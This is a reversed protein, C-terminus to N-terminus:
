LLPGFTWWTLSIILITFGQCVHQCIVSSWSNGNRYKIIEHARDILIPDYGLTFLSQWWAGMRTHNKMYWITNRKLNIIVRKWTNTTHHKHHLKDHKNDGAEFPLHELSHNSICFIDFICPNYCCFEQSQDSCDTAYCSNLKHSMNDVFSCPKNEVMAMYVYFWPNINPLM